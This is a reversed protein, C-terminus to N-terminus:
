APGLQREVALKDLISWVTAIRDERYRYFVNETFRIARGDTRLGLFEGNPSCAFALRAAVHPPETVLLAIEFRLDPITETDAVLMDRYGSLGLPRGNHEVREDVFRGLDAWARRNLCAVYARYLNSLSSPTVVM